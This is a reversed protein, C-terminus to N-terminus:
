IVQLHGCVSLGSLILIVLNGILGSIRMPMPALSPEDLHKNGLYIQKSGRWEGPLRYLLVRCGGSAPWSHVRWACSVTEVDMLCNMFRKKQEQRLILTLQQLGASTRAVSIYVM